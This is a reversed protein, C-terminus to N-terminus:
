GHTFLGLDGVEVKLPECNASFIVGKLKIVSCRVPRDLGRKHTLVKIVLMAWFNVSSMERLTDRVGRTDWKALLGTVQNVLSWSLLKPDVLRKLDMIISHVNHGRAPLCM